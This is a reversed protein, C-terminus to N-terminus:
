KSPPITLSITACRWMDLAQNSNVAGKFGYVVDKGSCNKNNGHGAMDLFAAKRTINLGIGSIRTQISNIQNTLTNFHVQDNKQNKVLLDNLSSIQKRLQNIADNAADLSSQKQKVHSPLNIWSQDGQDTTLAIKVNDDKSKKCSIGISSKDIRIDLPKGIEVSLTGIQCSLDVDPDSSILGTINGFGGGGVSISRIITGTMGTGETNPTYTVFLKNTEVNDICAGWAELAMDAIQKKARVSTVSDLEQASAKCFKSNAVSWKGSSKKKADSAGLSFGGYGINGGSKRASSIAESKSNYESNCVNDKMKLIFNTNSAYDSTNFAGSKLAIDCVSSARSVNLSAAFIIISALVWKKLNKKDM